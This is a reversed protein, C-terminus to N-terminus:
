MHRLAKRLSQHQSRVWGVADINWPPDAIIWLPPRDHLLNDRDPEIQRLMHKLDVPCICRPLRNQAFLQPPTLHQGEETVQLETNDRHFGTAASM